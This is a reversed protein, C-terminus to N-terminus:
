ISVLLVQFWRIRANCMPEGESIRLLQPGMRLDTQLPSVDDPMYPSLPVSSSGSDLSPLPDFAVVIHVLTDQGFDQALM